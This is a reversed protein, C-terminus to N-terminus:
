TNGFQLPDWTTVFDCYYLIGQYLIWKQVHKGPESTLPHSMLNAIAHKWEPSLPSEQFPISEPSEPEQPAAAAQPSSM